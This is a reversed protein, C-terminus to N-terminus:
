NLRLNDLYGKVLKEQDAPKLDKSLLEEAMRVSLEAVERRIESKAKKLEQEASLKAQEKIKGAAAAAESLIKEKEAEGEAELEKHIEAVRSELMALKTSYEAARKDATEKAAKADDMAQKIDASRKVLMKGIFKKWVVIVVIALIAFNIVKWLMQSGGGEHGGGESSAGAVLPLLPLIFALVTIVVKRDLIKEAISQSLTKTETKLQTVAERKSKEIGRKIVTLEETAQERAAEIIEKERNLGEQKLKNRAEVGRTTADRLRKEYEKLGEDVEKESKSASELTGGIREDREKLIKLLPKYLLSNMIFMLVVFGIMQYVLTIDIDLM